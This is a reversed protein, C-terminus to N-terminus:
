REGNYLKILYTKNELCYEVAKVVEPGLKRWSDHISLGKQTEELYVHNWVYGQYRIKVHPEKADFRETAPKDLSVQVGNQNYITMIIEGNMTVATSTEKPYRITTEKMYKSKDYKPVGRKPSDCSGGGTLLNSM